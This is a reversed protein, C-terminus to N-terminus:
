PAQALRELRELGVLLHPPEEALLEHGRVRAHAPVLELAELSVDGVPLEVLVDLEESSIRSATIPPPPPIPRTATASATPLGPTSSTRITSRSSPRARATASATPPAFTPTARAPSVNESASRPTSQTILAALWLSFTGTM